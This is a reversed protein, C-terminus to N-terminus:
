QKRLASAPQIALAHRAPLYSAALAVITIAVVALGLTFPDTASIGFLLSRITSSIAFAGALGLLIGCAALRMGGSVLEGIVRGPSAGLAMRIGFENQRQALNYANVGYIGISALVLALIAFAGFLIAQFRRESFQRQFSEELSTVQANLRGNELGGLVGRVGALTSASHSRIRLVLYGNESWVSQATPAYLIPKQEPAERGLRVNGVVGVIEARVSTEFGNQGLVPRSVLVRRGVPNGNPCYREVFAQNVMVVPVATEADSDIFARGARLPVGLTQFYNPSVTTYGVGAREGEPLLPSDDMEFPVEMTLKLLPLNSGIAASEVGSLNSINEVVERYSALARDKGYQDGPLYIRALYLNDLRMGTDVHSLNSLSQSVLAASALLMLAIAIQAAVIAQRFSRTSRGGSVGRGGEKVAENVDTISGTVAPLLGFLLGTVLALDVAFGIAQANLQIPMGKPLVTAEMMPTALRVLGWAVALGGM